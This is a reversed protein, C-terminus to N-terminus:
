TGPRMVGLPNYALTPFVNSISRNFRSTVVEGLVQRYDTTVKLDGDVLNGSALGPWSGYYQGGRVGAGALLMMNGWGHDLGQNGNEQVRRGFESITVVTVRSRLAGLDQMFANLERAFGGVMSHMEGAGPRGYNSHMDWSGFDISIVETGVDARILHATSRLADSLDSAPWERPYVAGNQPVIQQQAIPSLQTVTALASRVEDGLPNQEPAWMTQIQARRGGSFKDKDGSLKIRDLRDCSLSPAEGVFMTPVISDTLHVAESPAADGDLGIMRNVWGTRTDSGPNADEIQEMAMFHSRNPMDMGVAHVAALEGSDFMWKVPAMAPHLGFMPDKAVLSAAPLALTRRAAYYAPDGHPVVMGLGDIGGRLSIVVLVNGGGVNGFSAQRVADGFMTTAVGTTGAAAMGAMFRRRSLGAANEYEQCCNEEASIDISM